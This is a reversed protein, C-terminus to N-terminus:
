KAKPTIWDCLIRRVRKWFEKEIEAPTTFINVLIGDETEVCSWGWGSKAVFHGEKIDFKREHKPCNDCKKRM